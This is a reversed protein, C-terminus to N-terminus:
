INDWIKIVRAMDKSQEVIGTYILLLCAEFILNSM